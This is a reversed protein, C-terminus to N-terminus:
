EQKVQWVQQLGGAVLPNTPSQLLLLDDHHSPWGLTCTQHNEMQGGVASLSCYFTSRMSCLLLPQTWVTSTARQPAWEVWLYFKEEYKYNRYQAVRVTHMACEEGIVIVLSWVFEKGFTVATHLFIKCWMFISQITSNKQSSLIQRNGGGALRLRGWSHLSERKDARVM